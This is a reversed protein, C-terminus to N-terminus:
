FKIYNYTLFKGLNLVVTRRDTLLSAVPIPSEVRAKATLDLVATVAATHVGAIGTVVEHGPVPDLEAAVVTGAAVEHGSFLIGIFIMALDLSSFYLLFNTM